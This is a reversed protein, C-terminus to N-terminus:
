KVGAMTGQKGSKARRLARVAKSHYSVGARVVDKRSNARKRLDIAPTKIIDSATITVSVTKLENGLGPTVLAVEKVVWAIGGPSVFVEGYKETHHWGEPLKKDLAPAPKQGKLELETMM